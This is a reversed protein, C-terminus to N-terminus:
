SKLAKRVNGLKPRPVTGNVYLQKYCHLWAKYGGFPAIYTLSSETKQSDLVVQKGCDHIGAELYYLYM